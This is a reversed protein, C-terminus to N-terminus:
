QSKTAAALATKLQGLAYGIKNLDGQGLTVKGAQAQNLLNSLGSLAGQAKILHDSGGVTQGTMATYRVAGATGGPLTDTSRYLGNLINALKPNDAGMMAAREGGGAVFKAYDPGLTSILGLVASRSYGAAVARDIVASLGKTEPDAASILAIAGWGYQGHSFNDYSDSIATQLIPGGTNFSNAIAPGYESILDVIKDIVQRGNPDKTTIPNNASYAYANIIQPNRLARFGDNTLGIEWFVPDESVFQGRSPDYYRSM